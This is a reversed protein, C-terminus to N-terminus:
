NKLGKSTEKRAKMFYLTLFFDWSEVKENARNVNFGDNSFSNLESNFSNFADTIRSSKIKNLVKGCNEGSVRSVYLFTSSKNAIASRFRAM